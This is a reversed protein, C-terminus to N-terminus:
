FEYWKVTDHELKAIEPVLPFILIFNETYICLVIRIILITKVPFGM